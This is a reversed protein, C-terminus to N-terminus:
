WVLVCYESSGYQILESRLDSFAMYIFHSVLQKIHNASMCLINKTLGLDLGYCTRLLFM